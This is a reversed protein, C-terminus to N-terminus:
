NSFTNSGYIILNSRRVPLWTFEISDPEGLVTNRTENSNTILFFFTLRALLSHFLSVGQLVIPTGKYLTKWAM